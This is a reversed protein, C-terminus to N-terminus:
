LCKITKKDTTELWFQETCEGLMVKKTSADIHVTDGYLSVKSYSDLQVEARRRTDYEHRPRVIDLRCFLWLFSVSIFGFLQYPQICVRCLIFTATQM